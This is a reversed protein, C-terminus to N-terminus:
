KSEVVPTGEFLYYSMIRVGTIFNTKLNVLGNYEKEKIKERLVGLPIEYPSDSQITTIYYLDSHYSFSRHSDEIFNNLEDLSVNFLVIDSLVM